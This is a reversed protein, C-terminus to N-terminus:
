KKIRMFEIKGDHDDMFESIKEKYDSLIKEATKYDASTIKVSYKPSGLLKVEIEPSDTQLAEKIVEVGNSEYSEIIVNSTIEVKQVEFTSVVLEYLEDIYEEPIKGKFIEKGDILANEFATYVYGYEKVLPTVIRKTIENLPINNKEAFYELLKRGKRELKHQTITIKKQQESVRRLSLNIHGKSPDVKLVKVVVKQGMKIHNRINKVWGSSIERIHIMGRKEGYEDLAVMAGYPHIEMVTGIVFEGEEPYKGTM